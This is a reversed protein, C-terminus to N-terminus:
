PQQPVLTNTRLLDAFFLSDPDLPEVSGSWVLDLLSLHRDLLNGTDNLDSNSSELSTRNTADSMADLPKLSFPGSNPRRLQDECGDYPKQLSTRSEYMAMDM